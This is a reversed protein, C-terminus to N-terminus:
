VGSAITRWVVSHPRRFFAQVASVTYPERVVASCTFVLEALHAKLDTIVDLVPTAHRM